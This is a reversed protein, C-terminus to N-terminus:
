CASANIESMKPYRGLHLETPVGVQDDTSFMSDYFQWWNQYLIETKFPSVQNPFHLNSFCQSQEEAINPHYSLRTRTQVIAGYGQEVLSLLSVFSSWKACEPNLHRQFYSFCCPFSHFPSNYSTLLCILTQSVAQKAPVCFLDHNGGEEFDLMLMRKRTKPPKLRERGM